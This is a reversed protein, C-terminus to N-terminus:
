TKVKVDSASQVEAGAAVLYRKYIKSGLELALLFFSFTVLAYTLWQPVIMMGPLVWGGKFATLVLSFSRWAAIGCFALSLSFTVIDVKAQVKQPWRSYLIDARIHRELLMTYVIAFSALFLLLVSATENGWSTPSNFVFRMTVDYAVVLMVIFIGVACLAGAAKALYDCIAFIHWAKSWRM